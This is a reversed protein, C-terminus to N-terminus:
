LTKKLKIIKLLTKNIEEESIEGEQFGQLLANYARKPDLPDWFGAVLLIDIGAKQALLITKELSFKRKLVKSSLDDSIILIEEGLKQKLFEIGQPSLSFPLDNDIESYLANAVMVIEPEAKIAKQFQFIEPMQSFTALKEREPDFDIGGYGPFHKIATLIRAKKQGLIFSKALSATKETDKQFTRKFIFDGKSSEDLVPALNLNIGIEKLDKGRKFGIEFAQKEDKIKSPALCDLFDVRCIEGGEQDVAVFLPLGTNKISIEQLKEILEKLQKENKINRKLLLIGGPQIEEMLDQLNRDLKKGEFGIIFLQGVKQEITLKELITLSSLLENKIRFLGAKQFKPLPIKNVGNSISKYISNMGESISNRVPYIVFSFILVMLVLALLIIKLSNKM